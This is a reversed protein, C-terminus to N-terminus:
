EIGIIFHFNPQGGYYVEVEIDYKGQVFNALENAEAESVEDGYYITIIEYEKRILKKILKKWAKIYTEDCGIIKGNKISIYYGEKIEINNIKTTRISKTIAGTTTSEVAENMFELNDEAINESNFNIMASLGHIQNKTPIVIVNKDTVVQAAQQCVLITNSNNPLVFVTQANVANIANIIDRASPNQNESSDVIYDCGLKNMREIIGSGINCSVIGCLAVESSTKKLEIATAKSNNTQLTMNESKIKIFEGYEQAITLFQGPKLTHGHVKLINTDNVIVLSTVSAEVKKVFLNKEFSDPEKLDIIFETCYGFEGNFIETENIFKTIEDSSSKLEVPKGLFYNHIGIFITCLGEGGSDIVGVERLMKLKNPTNDCSIRSFEVVKQWFDAQSLNTEHTKWDDELMEATERIVTLMTGEVPKLVAGYAKQHASKFANVLDKTSATKKNALGLAFGKFIQSLIVGSNGRAGFLMGKAILSTINNIDYDNIDKLNKTASELTSAMNTGTDGDPVPFVNLADIRNKNNILANSASIMAKVFNAGDLNKSM